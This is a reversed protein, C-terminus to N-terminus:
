LSSLLGVCWGSLFIGSSQLFQSNARLRRRAKELACLSSRSRGQRREARGVNRAKLTDGHAVLVAGTNPDPSHGAAQIAAIAEAVSAGGAMEDFFM